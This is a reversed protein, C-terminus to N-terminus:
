TTLVSLWMKGWIVESVTQSALPFALPQKGVDVSLIVLIEVREHVM